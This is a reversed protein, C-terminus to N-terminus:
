LRNEYPGDQLSFGLPLFDGLQPGFLFVLNFEFLEFEFHGMKLLKALFAPLISLLLFFELLLPCFPCSGGALFFSLLCRTNHGAHLASIRSLTGDTFVRGVDVERGCFDLPM